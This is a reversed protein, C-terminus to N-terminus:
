LAIASFFISMINQERKWKTTKIYHSVYTNKFKYDNHSM